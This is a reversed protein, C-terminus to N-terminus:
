LRLDVQADSGEAPAVLWRHCLKFGHQTHRCSLRRIGIILRFLSLDLPYKFRIFAETRPLDQGDALLVPEASRSLNAWQRVCSQPIYFSQMAVNYLLLQHVKGHLDEVHASANVKRGKVEEIHTRIVM